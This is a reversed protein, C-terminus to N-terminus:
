SNLGGFRRLQTIFINLHLFCELLKIKKVFNERSVHDAGIQILQEVAITNHGKKVALWPSGKRGRLISDNDKPDQTMEGDKNNHPYM